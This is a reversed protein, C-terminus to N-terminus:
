RTRESLWRAEHRIVMFRVEVGALSAEFAPYTFLNEVPRFDIAAQALAPPGEGSPEALRTPALPRVLARKSRITRAPAVSKRPLLGARARAANEPSLRQAAVPPRRQPQARREPAGAPAVTLLLALAAALM